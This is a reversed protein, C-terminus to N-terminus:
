DLYIPPEYDKGLLAKKQEQYGLFAWETMDAWAHEARDYVQVYGIKTPHVRVSNTEYEHGTYPNVDGRELDEEDNPVAAVAEVEERYAEEVQPYWDSNQANAEQVLTDIYAGSDQFDEKIMGDTYGSEESFEQMEMDESVKEEIVAEAENEKEAAKQADHAHKDERKMRRRLSSFWGTEKKEQEKKEQEKKEPEPEEYVPTEEYMPEEITPTEEYMPEEYVPTEEYMPEEITPTEEYMPEEMEPVDEAVTEEVSTEKVTPEEPEDIYLPLEMQVGEEEAFEAANKKEEAKKRKRLVQEEERENYNSEISQDEDLINLQFPCDLIKAIMRMDQEQFNDRGLRQTLNQRSMKKGTEAEIIEALEKITMGKRSLVIKVQEGFTLDLM